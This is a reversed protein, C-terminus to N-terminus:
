ENKVTTNKPLIKTKAKGLQLFFLHPSVLTLKEPPLLLWLKPCFQKSQWLLPPSPSPQKLTAPLAEFLAKVLLKVPPVM